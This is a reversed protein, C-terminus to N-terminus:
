HAQTVMTEFDDKEVGIAGNEAEDITFGAEELIIQVLERNEKGDDFVLVRNNGTFSWDSM